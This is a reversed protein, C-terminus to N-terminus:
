VNTPDNLQISDPNPAKFSRAPPLSALVTNRVEVVGHQWIVPDYIASFLM